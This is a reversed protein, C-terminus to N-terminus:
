EAIGPAYIEGEQDFFSEQMTWVYICLFGGTADRLGIKELPFGPFDFGCRAAIFLSLFVLRPRTRCCIAISSSCIKRFGKSIMNKVSYLHSIYLFFDIKEFHSIWIPLFLNSYILWFESIIETFYINSSTNIKLSFHSKFNEHYDKRKSVGKWHFNVSKVTFFIKEVSSDTFLCIVSEILSFKISESKSLLCAWIQLRLSSRACRTM